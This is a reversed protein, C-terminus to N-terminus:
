FHRLKSEIRIQTYRSVSVSLYVDSVHIELRYVHIMPTHLVYTHITRYRPHTSTCVHIICIYRIYRCHITSTNRVQGLICSCYVRSVRTDQRVIRLICTSYTTVVTNNLITPPITMYGTGYVCYLTPYMRSVRSVCTDELHRRLFYMRYTQIACPVNTDYVICKPYM